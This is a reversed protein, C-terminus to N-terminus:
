LPRQRFMDFLWFVLGINVVIGVLTIAVMHDNPAIGILEGTGRLTQITMYSLVMIKLEFQSMM